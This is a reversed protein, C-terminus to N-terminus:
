VHINKHFYFSKELMVAVDHSLGDFDTGLEVM